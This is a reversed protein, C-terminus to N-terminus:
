FDDDRVIAMLRDLAAVTRELEDLPLRDFYRSILERRRRLFDEVTKEGAATLQVFVLRRDDADRQRVVQGQRVLRDTVGTIASLSVGLEEAVEGVTLRGRSGIVSLVVLQNGTLTEGPLVPGSFKAYFKRVWFYIFEGTRRYARLRREEEDLAM